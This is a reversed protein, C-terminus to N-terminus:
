SRYSALGSLGLPSRIRCSSTQRAQYTPCTGASTPGRYAPHSGTRRRRFQGGASRATTSGADPRPCGLHYLVSGHKSLVGLVRALFASATYQKPRIATHGYRSVIATFDDPCQLAYAREAVGYEIWHGRYQAIAAPLETALGLEAAYGDIGSAGGTAACVALQVAGQASPGENAYLYFVALGRWQRHSSGPHRRGRPVLM